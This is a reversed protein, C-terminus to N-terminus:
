LLAQTRAITHKILLMFEYDPSYPNGMDSITVCLLNGRGAPLRMPGLTKTMGTMGDASLVITNRDGTEKTIAGKHVPEQQSQRHGGWQVWCLDQCAYPSLQQKRYSYM